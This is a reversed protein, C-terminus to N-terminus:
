RFYLCLRFDRAWYFGNGRREIEKEKEKDDMRMM